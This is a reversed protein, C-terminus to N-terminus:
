PTPTATPLASLVVLPPEEPHKLRYGLHERMDLPRGSFPSLSAYSYIKEQVDAPFLERIRSDWTSGHFVVKVDRISGDAELYIVAPKEGLSGLSSCVAWVYLEQGVQGLIDWECLADKYFPFEAGSDSLVLKALEAQYEKWREVQIADPTLLLLPSETPFPSPTPYVFTATLAITPQATQTLAISTKAMAVAKTQIEPINPQAPACAALLVLIAVYFSIRSITKTAMSIRRLCFSAHLPKTGNYARYKLFTKGDERKDKEDTTFFKPRSDEGRGIENNSIICSEGEDGARGGFPSPLGRERRSLTLTLTRLM